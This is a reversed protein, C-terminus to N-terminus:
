VAYAQRYDGLAELMVGKNYLPEDNPVTNQVALDFQQLAEEVMGSRALEIGKDSWPDGPILIVSKSVEYPAIKRMFPDISAIMMSELQRSPSPLQTEPLAYQNGEWVVAKRSDYIDRHIWSAYTVARRADVLKITLAFECYVYRGRRVRKPVNVYYVEDPGRVNKYVPKGDKDTGVRKRRMPGPRTRKEKILITLPARGEMAMAKTVRGIILADVLELKFERSDSEAWESFSLKMEAMLAKLQSRDVLRYWGNKILAQEYRTRLHELVGPESIQGGASKEFVLGVKRIEDPIDAEPPRRYQIQITPYSRCAGLWLLALLAPWLLMRNRSM